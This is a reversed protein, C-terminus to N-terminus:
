LDVTQITESAMQHITDSGPGFFEDLCPIIKYKDNAAVKLMMCSVTHNNNTGEGIKLSFMRSPPYPIDRREEEEVLRELPNTSQHINLTSGHRAPVLNHGWEGFSLRFVWLGNLLGEILGDIM